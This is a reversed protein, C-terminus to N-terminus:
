QLTLFYGDKNNGLVIIINAPDVIDVSGFDITQSGSQAIISITFKKGTKLANKDLIEYEYVSGDNLSKDGLIEMDTMNAISFTLYLKDFNKGSINCLTLPKDTNHYAAVYADYTLPIEKEPESVKNDSISNDSISNDSASNESTTIPQIQNEETSPIIGEYEKLSDDKNSILMSEDINIQSPNDNILNASISNNKKEGCGSLMAVLLISLLSLIYYRNKGKNTNSNKNNM